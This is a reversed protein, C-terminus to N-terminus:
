VRWSVNNAHWVKMCRRSKRTSKSCSTMPIWVFVSFTAAVGRVSFVIAFPLGILAWVLVLPGILAALLARSKPCVICCYRTEIVLAHGFKSDRVKIAKQFGSTLLRYLTLVFCERNALVPHQRQLEGGFQRAMGASDASPENLCAACVRWRCSVCTQSSSRAWTARTPLCIGCETSRTTSPKTRCCSSRSTRSSRVQVPVRHRHLPLCCAVLAGRLKLDRYLKTTEYSRYVAQVTTFLRPSNKVLSTFIFEFRSNNFKTM